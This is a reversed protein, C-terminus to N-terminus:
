AFCCFLVVLENRYYIRGKSAKPVTKVVSDILAEIDSTSKENMMKDAEAHFTGLKLIHVQYLDSAESNIIDDALVGLKDRIHPYMLSNM